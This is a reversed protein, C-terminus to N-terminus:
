TTDLLFFAAWGGIWKSSFCALFTFSLVGFSGLFGSLISGGLGMETRNATSGVGMAGLAVSSVPAVATGAGLESQAPRAIIAASPIQRQYLARRLRPM